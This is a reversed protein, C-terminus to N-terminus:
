PKRTIDTLTITVFYTGKTAFYNISFTTNVNMGVDTHKGSVSYYSLGDNFGPYLLPHEFIPFKPVGGPYNYEISTDKKIEPYYPDWDKFSPRAPRGKVEGKAPNFRQGNKDKWIYVIKNPGAPDRTIKIDLFSASITNFVTFASDSRNYAKYLLTDAVSEVVNIQCANRIIRTGRINSVQIDITYRDEPVYKTAQTFQLRGGIQNVSFPAVTSDKLKANILAVTSDSSTILGTFLRITDNSLFFSGADKGTSLSRVGLLKVNMPDTSGDTILPASVTTTGQPVTFPNVAYYITDSLFGKVVKQCSCIFFLLLMCASSTILFIKNKLM